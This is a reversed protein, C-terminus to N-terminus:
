LPQAAGDMTHAHRGHMLNMTAELRKKVGSGHM